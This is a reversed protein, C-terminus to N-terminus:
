PASRYVYPAELGKLLALRVRAAAEAKTIRGDHNFDLGANQIYRKPHADDARDFLVFSNVKGVAAPWLVAMYVDELYKLRGRYPKFYRGVYDLQEEASMAALKDTTTGLAGATAPMQQILGVAGSGAGNRISPSFTEASEFAMVAMLHSPDAGLSSAILLVKDRFTPSVKSGWALITM